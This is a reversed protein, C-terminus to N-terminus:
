PQAAAQRPQPDGVRVDNVTEYDYTMRLTSRGAVLLNAISELAIPMRVGGVRRYWRIIEVRRTWFSPTKSLRGELRVLDGDEPRVFLSGDVLLVDKRRPKIAISTLGDPQTGRDVFEYNDRTFAARDPVGLAWMKKETDLTPMFVHSKIYDSGGTAVVEYRFGTHGDVETWVDMWATSDFRDNRAELHRLARYQVPSPDDLTLFRDLLTFGLRVASPGSARAPGIAVLAIVAAVIARVLRRPM